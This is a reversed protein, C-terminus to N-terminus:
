PKCCSSEVRYAKVDGHPRHDQKERCAVQVIEAGRVCMGSLDCRAEFGWRLLRRGKEGCKSQALKGRRKHERQAVCDVVVFEGVNKQAGEEEDRDQEELEAEEEEDCDALAAEIPSLVPSGGLLVVLLLLADVGGGM